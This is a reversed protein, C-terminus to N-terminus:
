SRRIGLGVLLCLIGLGLMGMAAYTLHQKSPEQIVPTQASVTIRLGLQGARTGLDTRQALDLQPPKPQLGTLNGKATVSVKFRKRLRGSRATVTDTQGAKLNKPRFFGRRNIRGKRASWRIVKKLRCGHKDVVVARLRVRGRLTVSAQTPSIAKIKAPAGPRECTSEREQVGMKVPPELPAEKRLVWKGTTELQCHSGHLRWDYRFVHKITVMAASDTRTILGSVQRAANKASKCTITTPTRSEKLSPLGTAQQCIRPGFLARSGPAPRLAAGPEMHYVSGPKDESSPPAAPCHPGWSKKMVKISGSALELPTALGFKPAFISTLILGLFWRSANM